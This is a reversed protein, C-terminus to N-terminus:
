TPDARSLVETIEDWDSPRWVYVEIYGTAGLIGLVREQTPTLNTSVKLEVALMRDGKLMVLDPWGPGLDGTVPTRWYGRDNLGRQIHIWEWGLFTALQQVRAQFQAETEQLKFAM